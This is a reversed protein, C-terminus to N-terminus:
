DIDFGVDKPDISDGYFGKGNEDDVIVSETLKKGKIKRELNKKEELKKSGKRDMYKFQEVVIKLKNEFDTSNSYEFTELLSAVREKESMTLKKTNENFIVKCQLKENSERLDKIQNNLIDKDEKLTKITNILYNETEKSENLSKYDKKFLSKALNEINEYMEIKKASEIAENIQSEKEKMFEEVVYQMYDNTKNIVNAVKKKSIINAKQTAYMEFLVQIKDKLPSPLVSESISSLEDTLEQKIKESEEMSLDIEERDGDSLEDYSMEGVEIEDDMQPVDSSVDVDVDLEMPEEMPEEMSFEGEIENEEENESFNGQIDLELEDDDDDEYGVESLDIEDEEDMESITNYGMEKLDNEIEDEETEIEEDESLPKKTSLTGKDAKTKFDNVTPIQDTVNSESEDLEDENEQLAPKQKGKATPDEVRPNQNGAGDGGLILEKEDLYEQNEKVKKEKAIDSHVMTKTKGDLIAQVTSAIEKNVGPAVSTEMNKSAEKVSEEPSRNLNKTNKTKAM